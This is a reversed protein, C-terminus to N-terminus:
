QPAGDVFEALIDISSVIGVLRDNEDVVPLHHIGAKLIKRTANVLTSDPLVTTVSESMYTDIAEEGLTHSLRDILFRRSTSDVLDLHYLDDDVDRTMDVLDTASLIGVCRGKRDVVPIASVRNEGMLTLAEHVTGGAELTVVDRTMIDSVKRDYISRTMNLYEWEFLHQYALSIEGDYRNKAATLLPRGDGIHATRRCAVRPSLASRKIGVGRSQIEATFISSENLFRSGLAV